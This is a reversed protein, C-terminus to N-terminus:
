PKSWLSALTNHLQHPVFRGSPECNQKFHPWFALAAALSAGGSVIAVGAQLVHPALRDGAAEDQRFHPCGTTGVAFLAARAFVTASVRASNRARRRFRIRRHDNTGTM